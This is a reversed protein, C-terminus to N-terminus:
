FNFVLDRSDGGMYNNRLILDSIEDSAYEMGGRDLTKKTQNAIKKTDVTLIKDIHEDEYIIDFKQIPPQESPTQISNSTKSSNNAWLFVGSGIVITGIALLVGTLSESKTKQEVTTRIKDDVANTAENKMEFYSSNNISQFCQSVMKSNIISKLTIDTFQRTKINIIINNAFIDTIEYKLSQSMSLKISEYIQSINKSELFTSFSQKLDTQFANKLVTSKNLVDSVKNGQQGGGFISTFSDILSTKAAQHLLAEAKVSSENLFNTMIASEITNVVNQMIKTVLDLTIETLKFYVVEQSTDLNINVDKTATINEIKIVTYQNIVDSKLLSIDSISKSIASNLTDISSKFENTNSITTSYVHQKITENSSKKPIFFGALGIILPQIFRSKYIINTTSPINYSLIGSSNNEFNTTFFTDTVSNVGKEITLEARNRNSVTKLYSSSDGIQSLNIKKPM